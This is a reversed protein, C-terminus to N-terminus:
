GAGHYHVLLSFCVVNGVYQLECDVPLGCSFNDTPFLLFLLTAIMTSGMNLGRHFPKFADDSRLELGSFRVSLFYFDLNATSYEISHGVEAHGLGRFDFGSIFNFQARVQKLRNM